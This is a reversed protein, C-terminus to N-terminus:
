MIIRCLECWFNVGEQQWLSYHSSVLFLDCGLCQGSVTGDYWFLVLIQLRVSEVTKLYNGVEECLLM